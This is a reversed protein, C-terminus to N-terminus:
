YNMERPTTKTQRIGLDGSALLVDRLDSTCAGYFSHRKPMKSTIHQIAHFLELKVLLDNGFEEQLLRKWQCCNDIYVVAITNNQAVARQHILNLLKKVQVFSTGRTFQWSLIKGDSNFIFFTSDYNNILGNEMEVFSDLILLLKSHTILALQFGRTLQNFKAGISTRM